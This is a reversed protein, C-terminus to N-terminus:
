GEALDASVSIETVDDAPTFLLDGTVHGARRLDEAAAAAAEVLALPGTVEVRALPARMSVKAQSKAGRNGMLAAGVAELMREDADVAPAHEGTPWTTLHVSGDQWWSWVEETVYPLIPALLRLTTHLACAL